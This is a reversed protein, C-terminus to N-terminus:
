QLVHLQKLHYDSEQTIPCGDCYITYVSVVNLHNVLIDNQSLKCGGLRKCYSEGLGVVIQARAPISFYSSSDVPIIKKDPFHLRICKDIVM